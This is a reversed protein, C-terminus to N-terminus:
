RNERPKKNNEKIWNFTSRCHPCIPLTHKSRPPSEPMVMLQYHKDEMPSTRSCLQIGEWSAHYVGGPGTLPVRDWEVYNM